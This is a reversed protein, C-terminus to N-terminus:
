YFTISLPIRYLSQSGKWCWVNRYQRIRRKSEAISKQTPYIKTEESFWMERKFYMRSSVTSYTRSDPLSSSLCGLFKCPNTLIVLCGTTSAWCSWTKRRVIWNLKLKMIYFLIVFVTFRWQSLL